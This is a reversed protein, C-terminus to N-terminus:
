VERIAKTLDSKVKSTFYSGAFKNVITREDARIIAMKRSTYWIFDSPTRLLKEIQESGDTLSFIRKVQHLKGRAIQANICGAYMDSVPIMKRIARKEIWGRNALPKRLAPFTGYIIYCKHEQIAKTLTKLLFSIKIEPDTILQLYKKLVINGNHDNKKTELLEDLDERNCCIEADATEM